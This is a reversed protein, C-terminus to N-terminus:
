LAEATCIHKHTPAPFPAAANVSGGLHGQWFGFQKLPLSQKNIFIGLASVDSQLLHNSPFDRFKTSPDPRLASLASARVLGGRSVIYGCIVAVLWSLDNMRKTWVYARLEHQREKREGPHSVSLALLLMTEM